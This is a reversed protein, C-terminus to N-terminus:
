RPPLAFRMGDEAIVVKGKFVDSVGALFLRRTVFNNPGPVLHTFVLQAAGADRAVEAAEVPTTHYNTIDEALQAFRDRGLRKAVRSGRLILETQLAEHFLIDVGKAHEIMSASKRTDGSIAISRGGFDFRYGVAPAVPDHDVKFMTVKLGNRELVVSSADPAAGLVVEHAVAGAAARPMFADTHHAVRYNVDFAYAETFGSVVQAVGEPGYVPLPQARGAIWSQTMAEGLGGIHDSHFHTLMVASLRDLPLNALNLVEWSGPGADVIVFEGGAIVATCSSAREEDPIPSGSGCVVVQLDPSTLVSDDVRSLNREIQREVLRDCASLSLVLAVLAFRSKM